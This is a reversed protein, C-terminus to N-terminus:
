ATLAEDARLDGYEEAADLLAERQAAPLAALLAELRALAATADM